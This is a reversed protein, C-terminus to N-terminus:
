TRLWSLWTSVLCWRVLRLGGSESMGGGDEQFRKGRKTGAMKRRWGGGLGMAAGVEGRENFVQARSKCDEPIRERGLAAPVM